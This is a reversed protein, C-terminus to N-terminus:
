QPASMPVGMRSSGENNATPTGEFSAPVKKSKRKRVESENDSRKRKIAQQLKTFDVKEMELLM